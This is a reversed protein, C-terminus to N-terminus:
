VVTVQERVDGVVLEVDIRAKEGTALRVGERHLPKFGTLEIDLRYEGPPLSAATYIGDRTSLVVRQPNTRTATVTVTAGPVAAGAQDRVLGTLEGAATQAGASPAIAAALCAAVLGLSFLRQPFRLM